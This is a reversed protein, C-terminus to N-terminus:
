RVPVPVFCVILIVICLIGVLKRIPDLKVSDDLTPPHSTRM